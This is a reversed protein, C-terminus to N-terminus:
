SISTLIGETYKSYRTRRFPLFQRVWDGEDRDDYSYKLEVIIMNAPRTPVIPGSMFSGYQLDRDITIRFRKDATGFYSRLYKNTGKPVMSQPLFGDKKLSDICPTLNHPLEFPPAKTSVKSGIMNEKIKIELTSQIVGAWSLDYWRLRYKKRSSAGDMTERYCILNPSDLYINNIIRDPFIRRFSAPHSKIISVCDNTGISKPLYKLEYRKDM